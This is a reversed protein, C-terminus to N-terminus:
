APLRASDSPIKAMAARVASWAADAEVAVVVLELHAGCRACWHDLPVTPRAGPESYPTPHDCTCLIM